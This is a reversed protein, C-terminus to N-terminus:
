LDTENTEKKSLHMLLLNREENMTASLNFGLTDACSRALSLGLGHHSTDSRSADRRWLREFMHPLDDIRLSDTSNAVALDIGDREASKLEVSLRGGSPTYEVANTLLNAVVTRLLDANTNAALGEPVSWLVDLSKAEAQASLGSWCDAVLGAVDVTATELRANGAEQRAVSLLAELLLGMRESTELVDRFTQDGAEEPWRLAYEAMTKLEALPTRLEHALDASFSREREFAGQLREMLDNLRRTIPQLENPMEGVPFRATLSAANIRSARDGLRDLPSLSTKVAYHVVIACGLAMLLGLAATGGIVLSLSQDLNHRNRAVVVKARLVDRPGVDASLPIEIDLACLRVSEGSSLTANWYVPEETFASPRPLDMDGLSPSRDSFVEDPGWAQFYYGSDAIFFDITRRTDQESRLFGAEPLFLRVESVLVRLEADFRGLLSQRVMAYLGVATLLWLLGLGLVLGTWLHRRISRM